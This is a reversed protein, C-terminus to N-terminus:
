WTHRRSSLARSMPALTVGSSAHIEALSMRVAEKGGHTAESARRSGADGLVDLDPQSGWTMRRYAGGGTADGVRVGPSPSPAASGCDSAARSSTRRALPGAGGPALVQNCGANSSRRGTQAMAEVQGVAAASPGRTDAGTSSTRVLLQPSSASQQRSIGQLLQKQPPPLPSRPLQNRSQEEPLSDAYASEAAPQARPTAEHSTKASSTMTSVGADHGAKHYIERNVLAAQQVEDLDLFEPNADAYDDIAQEEEDATAAAAATPRVEVVRSGGSESVRGPDAAGCAAAASQMTARRSLAVSLRVPGDQSVAPKHASLPGSAATSMRHQVSASMPQSSSSRLPAKNAQGMRKDQAAFQQLMAKKFPDEVGEVEDFEDLPGAMSQRVQRSHTLPGDMTKLSTGRRLFPEPSACTAPALM